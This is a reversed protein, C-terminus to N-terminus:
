FKWRNGCNICKVFTTMPEDASRTQLEYYSTKNSGCRGCKYEDTINEKGISYMFDEEAKQKDLYKEWRKHFLEFPKMFAIKELDIENKNIKKLLETNKIYSNKDINNYLMEVKNAYIRRFHKNSMELPVCNKIAKDVTYKYISDEIKDTKGKNNVITDLKKVAIKRYDM